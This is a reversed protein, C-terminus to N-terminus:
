SKSDDLVETNHKNKVQLMQELAISLALIIYLPWTFAQTLFTGSIIFGFLGAKLAQVNVSLITEDLRNILRCSHNLSKYILAILMLFLFLGVFGTEGLVQFWTSHVAHNRGDWYSSYFFYNVFFNDLGVGTFPHDLAMKIAAHWAYIRGMASEGLGEEASGGSQREGIEAAVMLLTFGAALVSLLALPNKVKSRLFFAFIAVLGLLGGRSQTAIIGYTVIALVILVCFKTFGSNNKNFLEACLFSVPFLLVLSLDNPDGIQSQLHRSITVRGGEVLGIGNLKNYVAVLAIVAGSLMIGVRTMTFAKPTNIWWTIVIVMVLVKMLPSSWYAYALERNTAMVVSLTVWAFFLTFVTLAPHWFPTLKKSVFFHWLIGSLSALALIKPIKFPMLAPFAEHLRFYTFLIFLIVLLVSFRLSFYLFFPLALLLFAATPGIWYYLSIIIFSLGLAISMLVVPRPKDNNLDLYNM